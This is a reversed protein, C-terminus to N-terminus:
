ETAESPAVTSEESETEEKPEETKAVEVSPTEEEPEPEPVELPPGYSLKSVDMIGPTMSDEYSAMMSFGGAVLIAAGISWSAYFATDSLSWSYTVFFLLYFMGVVGGLALMNMKVRSRDPKLYGIFFFVMLLPPLALWVFQLFDLVLWGFTTQYFFHFYYSSLLLVGLWLLCYQDADERIKSM